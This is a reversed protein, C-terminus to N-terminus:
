TRRLSRQEQLLQELTDLEFEIQERLEVSRADLETRSSDSQKGKSAIYIVLLAFGGIGSAVEENTSIYTHMLWRVGFFGAAMAAVQLASQASPPLRLHMRPQRQKMRLQDLEHPVSSISEALQMDNMKIMNIVLSNMYRPM